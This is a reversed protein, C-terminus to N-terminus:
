LLPGVAVEHFEALFILLGAGPISQGQETSSQRPLVEELYSQSSQQALCLAVM